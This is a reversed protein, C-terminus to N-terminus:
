IIYNPYLQYHYNNLSYILSHSSPYKYHVKPLHYDLYSININNVLEPDEIKTLYFSTYYQSGQSSGSLEEKTFYYKVGDEATIMYSGSNSTGISIKLASYPITKVDGNQFDVRFVGSRGNFNYFYRDSQTEKFLSFTQNVNEVFNQVNGYNNNTQNIKNKTLWASICAIILLVSGFKSLQVRNTYTSM